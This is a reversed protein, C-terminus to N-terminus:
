VFIFDSTTLQAGNAFSALLEAEVTYNSHDYTLQYLQGDDTDFYLEDRAGHNPYIPYQVESVDTGSRLQGDTGFSGHFAGNFLVPASFGDGLAIKDVGPQFDWILDPGDGFNLKFTDRGAGGTLADIGLGGELWDDGSGGNLVDLGSGGRLGDNGAGGDFNVGFSSDSILTDNFSSGIIKEIGSYTDGQADGGIGQNWALNVSVGASSAAYSLTDYGAGGINQDVGAGGFLFDNGAGGDLRDNGAEGALTDDGDGGFVMDNGGGAYIRDAGSGAQITDAFASGYITGKSSAQIYYGTIQSTNLQWSM